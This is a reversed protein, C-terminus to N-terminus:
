DGIPTFTNQSTKCGHINTGWTFTMSFGESWYWFTWTHYDGSDYKEIEEAEGRDAKLDEIEDNCNYAIFIGGGDLICGGLIMLLSIILVVSLNKM